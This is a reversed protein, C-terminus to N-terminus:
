YFEYTTILNVIQDSTKSEWVEQRILGNEYFNFVTEDDGLVLHGKADYEYVRRINWKKDSYSYSLEKEKRGEKGYEYKLHSNNLPISTDEVKIEEPLGEKNYIFTKTQISKKKTTTLVRVEKIKQGAKDYKYTTNYNLYLIAGNHTKGIETVLLGKKDYIYDVTNLPTDTSDFGEPGFTYNVERIIKNQDNYIYFSKKNIPKNGMVKIYENDRKGLNLIKQIETKESLLGKSNYLYSTTHDYSVVDWFTYLYKQTIKGERDFEKKLLLRGEAQVTDESPFYMIKISKLKGLEVIGEYNQTPESQSFSSTSISLLVAVILYKNM